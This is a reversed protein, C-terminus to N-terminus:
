KTQKKQNKRPPLFKNYWKIFEVIAVYTTEIGPKVPIYKWILTGETGNDKKFSGTGIRIRSSWYLHTSSNEIKFTVKPFNKKIEFVVPMIWDWSSHFWTDKEKNGELFKYLPSNNLNEKRWYKGVFPSHFSTLKYGMFEAILKNRKNIQTKTM